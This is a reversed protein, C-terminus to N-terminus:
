ASDSHISSIFFCPREMNQPVEEAYISYGDGFEADLAVSVAGIILNIM